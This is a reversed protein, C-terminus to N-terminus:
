PLKFLAGANGEAFAPSGQADLVLRDTLRNGPMDSGTTAEFWVALCGVPTGNEYQPVDVVFYVVGDEVYDVVGTEARGAITGDEGVALPTFDLLDFVFQDASFFREDRPFRSIDIMKSGDESVEADECFRETSQQLYEDDIPSGDSRALSLVAYTREKDAGETLPMLAEGSTLGLLTIDFDGVQQTEDIRVGEGQQFLEAVKGLDAGAAIEALDDFSAIAYATGSFVLCIAAVAAAKGFAGMAHLRPFCCPRKPAPTSAGQPVRAERMAACARQEFDDSIPMEDMAARYDNWNM